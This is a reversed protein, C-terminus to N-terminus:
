RYFFPFLCWQGIDIGHQAGTPSIDCIISFSIIDAIRILKTTTVQVRSITFYRSTFRKLPSFTKAQRIALPFVKM